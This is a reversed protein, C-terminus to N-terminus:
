KFSLYFDLTVFPIKCTCYLNFDSLMEPLLLNIYIIYIDLHNLFLFTLNMNKDLLM